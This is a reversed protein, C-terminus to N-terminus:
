GLENTENLDDSLNSNIFNRDNITSLIYLCKYPHKKDKLTRGNPKNENMYNVNM